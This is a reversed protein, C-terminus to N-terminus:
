RVEWPMMGIKDLYLPDQALERLEEMESEYPAYTIAEGKPLNHIMSNSIIQWFEEPFETKIYTLDETYLATTYKAFKLMQYCKLEAVKVGKVIFDPSGSHCSIKPNLFTTKSILEYELGLNDNVRKELFKGWAMPQSYGGSQVSRKLKREYMKEEIYGYFAASPEGNKISGCLRHIQSSTFNFHRLKNDIM